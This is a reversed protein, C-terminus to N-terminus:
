GASYTHSSCCSLLPPTHPPPPPSRPTFSPSPLPSCTSTQCPAATTCVETPTMSQLLQRNEEDIRRQDAATVDMSPNESLPQVGAPAVAAPPAMSASAAAAAASQNGARTVHATSASSVMDPVPARGRASAASSTPESAHMPNAPTSSPDAPGKPIQKRSLAFQMLCYIDNVTESSAIKISQRSLSITVAMLQCITLCGHPSPMVGAWM